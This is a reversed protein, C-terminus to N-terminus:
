ATQEKATAKAEGPTIYNFGRIPEGGSTHDVKEVIRQRIKNYERIAAIRTPGDADLILKALQADVIDDKLMENLLSTVRDQVQANRLLRSGNVSCTQYALNYESPACEGEDEDGHNENPCKRSLSDLNFAYAEAYSLTANGFFESNQAYLRCFFERQAPLDKGKKPRAKAM